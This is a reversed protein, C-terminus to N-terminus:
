QMVQVVQVFVVVRWHKLFMMRIHNEIWVSITLAMTHLWHKISISRIPFGHLMVFIFLWHYFSFHYNLRDMPLWQCEFMFCVVTHVMFDMIIRQMELLYMM